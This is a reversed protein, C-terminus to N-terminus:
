DSCTGANYRIVWGHYELCGESWAPSGFAVYVSGRDLLLAAHSIHNKGLFGVQSGDSRKVVAIIQRTQLVQGTRLDLMSIWYRVDLDLSQRRARDRTVRDDSNLEECNPLDPYQNKTGSCSM